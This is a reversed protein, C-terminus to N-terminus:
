ISIEVHYLSFKLKKLNLLLYSNFYELSHFFYVQM